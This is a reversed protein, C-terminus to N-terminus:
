RPGGRSCRETLEEPVLNSTQTGAGLNWSLRHERCPGSQALAARHTPAAYGKNIAWGYQPFAADRTVMLQDREVKALVSAAAISSCSLDGKVVTIVPPAVMASESGGAQEPESPAAALELGPLPCVGLDGARDGARNQAPDTLWDHSGDLLVVDPLQGLQGLARRGALRLAAIIGHADIEAPEAHGVAAGLCWRQVPGVLAERAAASLLKSDRLGHPASRTSAAVLVIGVSVPGALAGRGVEDMGAIVTKGSRLLGRELRLSPKSAAAKARGGRQRTGTTALTTM